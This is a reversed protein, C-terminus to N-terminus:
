SLPSECSNLLNNENGGYFLIARFIGFVRTYPSPILTCSAHNCTCFYVRECRWPVHFMTNYVRQRKKDNGASITGRLSNGGYLEGLFYRFPSNDLREVEAATNSFLPLHM